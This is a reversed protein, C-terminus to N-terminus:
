RRWFVPVLLSLVTYLELRGLIMCGTLAVKVTAPLDGYHSIAGVRELGPGINGLTAAVSSISTAMDLGHAAVFLSVVVFLSLYLFFFGSTEEVASEQIVQPGLRIPMVVQPRIMRVVDRHLVKALIALRVVKIGGATSGACGGVFMLTVLLVKCFSHYENFNDTVYGTTTALSVVQFAGHRLADLANEHREHLSVTVALIALAMVGAYAWLERDRVLTGLRGRFAAHYLSFNVGALVMFAIVVTQASAPFGALSENRTSFGGTSLTTFAHCVADFLDVGVALLALVEALTFVVYIRWLASSTDRIRPRVSATIPGPVESQFLYRGGVGLEAFVAVFLVIIGMGGLWQTTSRWFLITRPLTAPAAVVSSGTTTFGSVSEFFADVPDPIAGSLLYPLAGFGGTLVWACTVIAFADRRTVTLDRQNRFGLFLALGCLATVGASLGMYLMGEPEGTLWAVPVVCLMSLGVLILLFGVHRCVVSPKM